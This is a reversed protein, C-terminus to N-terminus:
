SVFIASFHCLSTLSSMSNAFQVEIGIKFIFCIVRVISPFAHYFCSPIAVNWDQWGPPLLEEWDQPVFKGWWVNGLLDSQAPMPVFSQSTMEHVITGGQAYDVIGIGDQSWKMLASQVNHVVDVPSACDSNSEGVMTSLINEEYLGLEEKIVDMVWQRLELESGELIHKIEFKRKLADLSVTEFPAGETSLQENQRRDLSRLNMEQELAKKLKQMFYELQRSNALRILEDVAQRTGDVSASLLELREVQEVLSSVHDLAVQVSSDTKSQLHNESERLIRLLSEGDIDNTDQGLSRVVEYRSMTGDISVELAEGHSNIAERAGVQAFVTLIVLVLQWIKMSYLPALNRLSDRM